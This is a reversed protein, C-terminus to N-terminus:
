PQSAEPEAGPDSGLRERLRRLAAAQFIRATPAWDWWDVMADAREALAGRLQDVLSM